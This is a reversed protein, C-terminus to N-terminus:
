GVFVANKFRPLRKFAFVGMCTVVVNIGVTRFLTALAPLSFISIHGNRPAIYWSTLIEPPTPHPHLMTQIWLLGEEALHVQMFQGLAQLDHCHEFVEIAVILEYSGEPATSMGARYPDYSRVLFGREQLALGTAGPDSGSGFDLVRIASQCGEFKDAIHLGAAYAPQERIPVNARGPIPPDAQIYDANYIEAKFRAPTWDDMLDTYVFSCRRCAYYPVMIPSAPFPRTGLRDMCSRNFDITGVAVVDGFGCCKCTRM